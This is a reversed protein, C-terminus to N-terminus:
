GSTRHSVIGNSNDYFKQIVTIACDCDYFKQIVTIAYDTMSSRSLLVYHCADLLRLWTSQLKARAFYRGELREWNPLSWKM